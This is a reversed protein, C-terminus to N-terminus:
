KGIYTISSEKFVFPDPVLKSTVFKTSNKSLKKKKYYISQGFKM